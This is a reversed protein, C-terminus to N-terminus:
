DVGRKLMGEIRAATNLLTKIDQRAEHEWEELAEVRSTLKGAQFVLGGVFVLITVFLSAEPLGM